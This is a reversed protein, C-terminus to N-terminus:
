CCVTLEALFMIWIRFYNCWFLVFSCFCLVHLYPYKEKFNFPPSKSSLRTTPHSTWLPLPPLFVTCAWASPNCFVSTWKFFYQIPLIYSWSINLLVPLVFLINNHIYPAQNFLYHVLLHINLARYFANHLHTISLQHAYSPQQSQVEMHQSQMEYVSSSSFFSYM